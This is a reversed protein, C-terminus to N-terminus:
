HLFLASLAEGKESISILVMILYAAMNEEKEEVQM